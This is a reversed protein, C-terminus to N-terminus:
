GGGSNFIMKGEGKKGGNTHMLLCILCRPFFILKRVLHNPDIFRLIFFFTFVKFIERISQHSFNVRKGYRIVIKKLNEKEM